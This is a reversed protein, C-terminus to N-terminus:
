ERFTNKSHVRRVSDEADIRAQKLYQWTADTKELSRRCDDVCRCERTARPTATRPTSRTTSSKSAEPHLPAAHILACQVLMSCHM